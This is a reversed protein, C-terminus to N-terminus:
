RRAGKQQFAAILDPAAPPGDNNAAVTPRQGVPALGIPPLNRSARIANVLSAPEPPENNCLAM